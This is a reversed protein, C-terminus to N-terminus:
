ASTWSWITAPTPRSPPWTPSASCKAARRRGGSSRVAWARCAAFAEPLLAELDGSDALRKRLEDTKARLELDSLAQMAPELANIAEVAPRMRKADREHKTGFISRFIMTLM